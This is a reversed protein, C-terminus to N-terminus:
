RDIEVRAVEGRLRSRVRGLLVAATAALGLVLGWWLGRPGWELRFALVISVPLGIVWYGLLSLVVPVRTDGIGRLVGIAVAQLGDFVAFCGGLVILAGALTIVAPDPSYVAALARPFMVFLIASGTMFGAGVLLAGVAARRAQAHDRAGIARGVLVAAAAGVGQPVMFVIASLNLAIHHGALALASIRGMLAGVVGFVGYEFFMQAGIPVGLRVMRGLPILDSSEARWPRLRPGLERWGALLLAGALAWRSLTTALAGGAVGLAPAGLQGYILVWDLLANLLNAGLTVWVIPAIRGLAQLTQRFVIFVYFPLVGPIIIWTYVSAPGILEAPQGLARLIPRVVTLGAAAPLTILVALLMGRQLGRAIAPEDHAGVAQAVIPDLAMLTGMGIVIVAFFYVNGLAVAGLAEASLRGVMVTDVVGMLMLGLQVAVVPLALRYLARFEARTPLAPFVRTM